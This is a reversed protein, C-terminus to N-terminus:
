PLFIVKVIVNATAASGEAAQVRFFISGVNYSQTGANNITLSQTNNNTNASATNVTVATASTVIATGGGAAATFVGCTATTLTQSASTIFIKDVVFNTMGTPYTITVTNDTNGSNFNVGTLVIFQQGIQTLATSLDTHITNWDTSAIVKGTFATTAAAPPTYLWKNSWGM